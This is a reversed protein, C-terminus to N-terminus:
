RSNRSGLDQGIFDSRDSDFPDHWNSKLAASKFATVEEAWSEWLARCHEHASLFPNLL